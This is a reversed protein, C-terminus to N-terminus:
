FRWRTAGGPEVTLLAVLSTVEVRYVHWPPPGGSPATFPATLATGSEDVECPWGGEVWEAARAAVVEPDTVREARGEATLDFEQLAVALSCRPDRALNRAKRTRPGTEFWFADDAWLAGIGTTHPGGDANLTTLWTSHRNPGGGGPAQDFGRDLRETVMALDLTPTHDQTDLNIATM